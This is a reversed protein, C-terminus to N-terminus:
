ETGESEIEIELDGLSADESSSLPVTPETLDFLYYEDTAEVTAFHNEIFRAEDDYSTTVYHTAGKEIKDEIAFGIPWGRRDTQWLFATDGQYPAIVKASADTHRQVAEGASVIAPNNINFYGGVEYWSFLFTMGSILLVLSIAAWRHISKQETLLWDAGRAALLALGPILQIQYYDHQVNGTAFIVLYLGMSLIWAFTLVDLLQQKKNSKIVSGLAVFVVGWYGFILKSIREAFLWRWWAPKLRISNGNLLWTNAPIGAPYQEIWWRWALMPLVSIIFLWLLPQKLSNWGFKYWAAAVYIPGFFVATPKVLLALTLLLVSAVALCISKASLNLSKQNTQELWRLFLFISATSFAVMTPEPLIVRSYYISYPLFAVFAAALLGVSKRKSVTVVIGYLSTLTLLSFAISTLRSAIVVDNDPVLSAIWLSILNYVPFEVMRYGEPNPEGSPINSLDHYEPVFISAEGKQLERTVSVTDAQRWSHWDAVPQTLSKFSVSAQSPSKLLDPLYIVRVLAAALVIGILTLTAWQQKVM